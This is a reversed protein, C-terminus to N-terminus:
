ALAAAMCDARLEALGAATEASTVAVRPFAAPRRSVAILSRAAEAEAASPKLKDAKTLVVEYSVAAQDFADM